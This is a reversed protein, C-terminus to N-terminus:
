PCYFIKKCNCCGPIPKNIATHFDNMLHLWNLSFYWTMSLGQRTM